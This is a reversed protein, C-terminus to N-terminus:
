SDLNERVTKLQERTTQPLAEKIAEAKDLSQRADALRNDKISQIAKAVLDQGQKSQEASKDLPAPAKAADSAIRDAVSPKTVASAAKPTVPTPPPTPVPSKSPEDKKDCAGVALLGMVIAMGWLTNMAKMARSRETRSIDGGYDRMRVVNAGAPCQRMNSQWHAVSILAVPM